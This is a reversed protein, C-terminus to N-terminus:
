CRRQYVGLPPTPDPVRRAAPDTEETVHSSRARPLHRAVLTILEAPAYPKTLVADCGADSAALRTAAVADATLAVILPRRDGPRARVERALDFGNGDPVRRDLLVVDFTTGALAHRAEALNTVEVIAAAALRQDASRALSSRLLARNLADDELSLVRLPREVVTV